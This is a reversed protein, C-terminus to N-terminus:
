PTLDADIDLVRLYTRVIPKEQEHLSARIGCLSGGPLSAVYSHGWEPGKAEFNWGYAESYLKCAAEVDASVIELYYITHELVIM